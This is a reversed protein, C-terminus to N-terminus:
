EVRWACECDLTDSFALGKPNRFASAGGLCIGLNGDKMVVFGRKAFAVPVPQGLQECVRDKLGQGNSLIRLLDRHTAYEGKLRNKLVPEASITNVVDIVFEACDTQGWQFPADAWKQVTRVLLTPWNPKLM